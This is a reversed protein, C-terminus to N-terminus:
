GFINAEGDPWNDLFEEFSMNEFDERFVASVVDKESRSEKVADDFVQEREGRAPTRPKRSFDPLNKELM